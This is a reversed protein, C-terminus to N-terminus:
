VSCELSVYVQGGMGWRAPPRVTATRRVTKFGAGLAWHRLTALNAVWWNFEAPPYGLRAVPTRPHLVTLRVDIAELLQLTGGPNLCAHVQELAGVPDRLHVLLAGLFVRDVPGGIAEPTVDMVSCVVRRVSSGLAEHAIAFGEGLVMGRAAAEAVLKERHVPPWDAGDFQEVDIAVVEAGRQEHAFAWFGDFTGVDLVRRGDLRAPLIRAPVERLDVHGPTVVGPALEITHYWAPNDRVAREAAAV